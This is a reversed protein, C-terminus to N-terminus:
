CGPGNGKFVPNEERADFNPDGSQLLVVVLFVGSKTFIMRSTEPKCEM